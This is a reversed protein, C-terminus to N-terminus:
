QRSNVFQLVMERIEDSDLDFFGGQALRNKLYEVSVESPKWTGELGYCSCHSSENEYLRGGKEALVYSSGEYSGDFYGAIIINFDLVSDDAFDRAVDVENKWNGVFKEM